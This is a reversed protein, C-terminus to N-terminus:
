NEIELKWSDMCRIGVKSWQKEVIQRLNADRETGLVPWSAANKPFNARSNANWLSLLEPTYRNLWGVFGLLLLKLGDIAGALGYM